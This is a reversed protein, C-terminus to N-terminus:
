LDYDRRLDHIVDCAPRHRGSSFDAESEALLKALNLTKLRKEFLRPSLLVCQPSGGKTIVIPQGSQRADDIVQQPNKKLDALTRTNSM